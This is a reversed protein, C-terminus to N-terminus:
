IPRKKRFKITENEIVLEIVLEILVKDAVLCITAKSEVFHKSVVLVPKMRRNDASPFIVNISVIYLYIEVTDNM